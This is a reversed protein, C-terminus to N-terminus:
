VEGSALLALLEAEREVSIAGARREVTPEKWQLAEAYYPILRATTEEPTSLQLGYDEVIRDNSMVLVDGELWLPLSSWQNLSNAEYFASDIELLEPERGTQDMIADVFRGLGVSYSHGNYVEYTNEQDISQILMRAFDDVDSYSLLDRGMNPLLMRDQTMVRHFWYYLRNTHDYPGVILGPRLIIKDLSDQELLIRDCEAKKENYTAMSKEAAQEATCAVTTAEETMPVVNGGEMDYSSGTSVLVYRGVKGKMMQLQERFPVPYYCCIDLVCDWDEACMKKMDETLRDGQIRKIEPFLDPNTKGRNFMTVDYKASKVLQEMLTRGVFQSGGIVLVKKM